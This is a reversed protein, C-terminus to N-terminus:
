FGGSKPRASLIDNLVDMCSGPGAGEDNRLAEVVPDIRDVTAATTKPKARKLRQEKFTSASMRITKTDRDAKIKKGSKFGYQVPKGNPTALSSVRICTPGVDKHADGIQKGGFGRVIFQGPAVEVKGTIVEVRHTYEVPASAGDISIVTVGCHETVNAFGTVRPGSKWTGNALKTSRSTTSKM